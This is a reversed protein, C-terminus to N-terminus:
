RSVYAFQGEQVPKRETAGVLSAVTMRMGVPLNQLLTAHGGKFRIADRYNNVRESLQDFTAEQPKGNGKNLNLKAGPPVCIACVVPPNNSTVAQKIKAVVGTENRVSQWAQFANLDAVSALGITGTGFRHTVLEEGEQALRNNVGMLSYDCM